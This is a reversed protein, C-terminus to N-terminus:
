RFTSLAAVMAFALAVLSVAVLAHLAPHERAAKRLRARDEEPLSESAQALHADLKRQSARGQLLLLLIEALTAVGILVLGSRRTAWARQKERDLAAPIGDLLPAPAGRLLPALPHPDVAGEAPRLPWAITGAGQELPDGAVTAYLLRAGPADPPTVEGAFFGLPDKALPVVAGEIRGEETWFSVYVRDRRSPSVLPLAKGSAAPPGLWTAGPIVPLTGEWRATKEGARAQVTLEVQHAFAKVQFLAVGREDTTASPPSAELGAGSLDVQARAGLPAEVGAPSVQIRLTEPFPSALHGRTADVRLGLDGHTTGNLRGLRVFAPDPPAIRIEGGALLRPKDAVASVAVALPGHLPSPASLLAEAVGDGDGSRGHWARLTQGPATAEVLLDLAGGQEEVGYLSKVVELRLAVKRAGEAPAGYVRVATVPRLAGPGLFVLAAVLVSLTPLVFTAARGLAAGGWRPSRGASSM